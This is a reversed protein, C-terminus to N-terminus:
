FKIETESKLIDEIMNRETGRLKIFICIPLFKFSQLQILTDALDDKKKPSRKWRKQIGEYSYGNGM